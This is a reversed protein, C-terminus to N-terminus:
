TSIGVHINLNKAKERVDQPGPRSSNKMGSVSVESNRVDCIMGIVDVDIVHM